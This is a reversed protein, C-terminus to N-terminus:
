VTSLITTRMKPCEGKKSKQFMLFKVLVTCFVLDPKLCCFSIIIDVSKQFYFKHLSILVDATFTSLDESKNQPNVKKLWMHGVLLAFGTQIKLLCLTLQFQQILM